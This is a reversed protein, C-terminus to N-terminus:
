WWRAENTEDLVPIDGMADAPVLGAELERIRGVIREYDDEYFQRSSLRPWSLRSSQHEVSGIGLTEMWTARKSNVLERLQHRLMVLEQQAAPIDFAAAAAHSKLRDLEITLRDVTEHDGAAEASAIDARLEQTRTFLADADVPQDYAGPPRM